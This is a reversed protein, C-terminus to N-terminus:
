YTLDRIHRLRVLTSRWIDTRQDNPKKALQDHSRRIAEHIGHQKILTKVLDDIGSTKTM